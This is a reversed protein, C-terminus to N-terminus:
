SPEPMSCVDNHLRIPRGEIVHFMYTGSAPRQSPDMSNAKSEIHQAVICASHADNAADLLVNSLETFPLFALACHVQREDLDASWDSLQTKGKELDQKEYVQVLRALGILGIHPVPWQKPDMSRAYYTLEVCSHTLISGDGFLKM